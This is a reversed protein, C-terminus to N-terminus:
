TKSMHMVIGHPLVKALFRYLKYFARPTYIGRGKSAHRLAKEAAVAPNVRPLTDFTHSRGKEIGATPLFETDMPGPCLALVNIGKKKLEFRLAKSFALVYSKTSCYVAMRATPAFSAISCVNLIFSGKKMYPLSVSTVATLARNNLDVMRTQTNMDMEEFSGLTGFGANNVLIKVEPKESELMESLTEYSEHKTLDLSIPFIKKNPFREKLADLRETRRAIVWIEEIEDYKESIVRVFEEGLGSSAGTVVAIKM